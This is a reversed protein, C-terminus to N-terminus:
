NQYGQPSGKFKDVTGLILQIVEEPTQTSNKGNRGRGRFQSCSSRVETAM